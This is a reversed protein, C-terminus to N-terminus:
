RKGRRWDWPPVFAGRWMGAKATRGTRTRCTMMFGLGALGTAFLTLTTPEPIPTPALAALGAMRLSTATLTTFTLTQLDLQNISPGSSKFDGAFLNGGADFTLAQSGGGSIGIFTTSLTNPDIAYISTGGQPLAFLTGADFTGVITDIAVPAVALASPQIAPSLTGLITAM